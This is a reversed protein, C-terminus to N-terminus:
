AECAVDPPHPAPEVDRRRRDQLLLDIRPLILGLLGLTLFGAGFGNCAMAVDRDQRESNSVLRWEAPSYQSAIQDPLSPPALTRGAVLLGVGFAVALAAPVRSFWGLTVRNEPAPNM